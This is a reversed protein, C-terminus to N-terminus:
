ISKNYRLRKYSNVTPNYFVFLDNLVSYLGGIINTSLNVQNLTESSLDSLVNRNTKIDIISIKLNAANGQKNMSIKSMFSSTM